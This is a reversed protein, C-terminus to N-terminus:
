GHTEERTRKSASPSDTQVACCAAAEALRQGSLGYVLMALFVVLAPLLVYDSYGTMAGLGVAGLVVLLLPTFCCLAAFVSGILGAWLFGRQHKQAM